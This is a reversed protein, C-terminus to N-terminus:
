VSNLDLASSIETSLIKILSSTLNFNKHTLFYNDIFIYIKTDEIGNEVKLISLYLKLGYHTYVVSESMRDGYNGFKVDVWARGELKDNVATKM